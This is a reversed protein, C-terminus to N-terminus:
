PQCALSDPWKSCNSFVFKVPGNGGRALMGIAAMGAVIGVGLAATRAVSVKRVEIKEASGLPLSYERGRTDLGFITRSRVQADMLAVRAGDTQTVITRGMHVSALESAPTQVVQSTACGAQAALVVLAAGRCTRRQSRSM